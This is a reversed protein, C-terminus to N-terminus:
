FSYGVSVMYTRGFLPRGMIAGGSGQGSGSVRPNGETLGLTDTANNVALRLDVGNALSASAGLDLTDYAPLPQLNQPDSYRQGVHTWTGFLRFAGFDTPIRYSPTLRLEVKPVRQVDNSSLNGSDVYRGRAFDGSFAVDFNRVPRLNVEFELGTSQTTASFSSSGTGVQFQQFQSNRLKNTYISLYATYLSTVANFGLEAQSIREIGNGTLGSRVDDFMPLHAGSNLRVFTSFQKSLDYNAGLTWSTAHGTWHYVTNGGGFYALSNDYLTLPNGDLDGTQINRSTGDIRENEFRTGADVRLADTLKWEDALYAATNTGNWTGDFDFNFASSTMGHNSALVGNDLKVDVLRPRADLTVLEQNGLYWLDRSSYDAFYAGVTLTNGKFLEGSVHTEDTFSQIHKDVSWPEIQAVMMSTDTIAAGSSTFSATGGTAPAGAAAVVAPDNNAATVQSAIYAALTTPVGGNVLGYTPVSGSTYSNKSNLSWSGIKQDLTAGFTTLSPGRGRGMDIQVTGPTSGPSTEITAYRTEDDYWTFTRPNVGPFASVHKGDASGTLPVDTYWASSVNMSRAYLDLEGGGDLKHTILASVQGGRDSPFQTDRLGNSTDYFGGVTAFWNTAIPGSWYGDLRRLNGSGATLRIDGEPADNGKRQVFNVSVGPQGSGYIPSTGGRLVEVREITDDIRFLSSGELFSLSPAAFIPSGNMQITAYPSDGAEPFGRVRINAGSEGGTTEVFVGPVIKLLDATSTPAADKIQEADATTISYGAEKKLMGERRSNGLVVVQQTQTFDKEGAATRPSGSADLPAAAGSAAAAPAAASAASAAPAAADQALAREAAMTALLATIALKLTSHTSTTRTM